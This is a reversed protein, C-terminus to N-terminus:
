WSQNQCFDVSNVFMQRNQKDFHCDLRYTRVVINLLVLMEYREPVTKIEFNVACVSTYDM